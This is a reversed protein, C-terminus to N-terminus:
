LFLDALNQGFDGAPGADLFDEVERSQLGELNGHIKIKISFYPDGM